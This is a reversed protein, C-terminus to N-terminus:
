ETLYCRVNYNDILSSTDAFIKRRIGAIASVALHLVCAFARRLCIRSFVLGVGVFVEALPLKLAVPLM